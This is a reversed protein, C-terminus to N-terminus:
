RTENGRNAGHARNKPREAAFAPPKKKGTECKQKTTDTFTGIELELEKASECASPQGSM